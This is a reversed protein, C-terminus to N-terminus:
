VFHLRGIMLSAIMEETAELDNNTKRQKLDRNIKKNYTNQCIYYSVTGVHFCEFVINDYSLSFPPVPLHGLSGLKRLHPHADILIKKKYMRIYVYPSNM